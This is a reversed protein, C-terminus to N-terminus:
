RSRRRDFMYNSGTLTKVYKKLEAAIQSVRGPHDITRYANHVIAISITMIPFKSINGLRDTSIIFGQKRDDNDYHVPIRADFLNIVEESIPVAHELDTVIIFDDGGIHGCFDNADGHREISELLVQSTLKIVESGAYFGYRDNYAKFDDLDAYLVAFKEGNRIRKAIAGEIALNGPLGTLPSAETEREFRRIHMNIRAELEIPDFPKTIYDDAGSDIGILKDELLGRATLLIIPIQANQRSGRIRKVVEIGDMEPMMIDLVILDPTTEDLMKLCELGDEAPYTEYKSGSLTATILERINPDDDVVFIKKKHSGSDASNNNM